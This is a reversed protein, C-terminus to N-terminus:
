NQRLLAEVDEHSLHIHRNSVGIPVVGDCGSAGGNMEGLVKKVMEAIAARSIEM